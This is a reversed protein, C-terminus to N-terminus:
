ENELEKLPLPVPEESNLISDEYWSPPGYYCPVPSGYITEHVSPLLIAVATIISILAAVGALIWIWVKRTVKKM